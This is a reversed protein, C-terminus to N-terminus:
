SRAGREGNGLDAGADVEGDGVADVEDDGGADVAGDGGAAGDGVDDPSSAGRSDDGTPEAATPEHGNSGAANAADPEVILTFQALRKDNCTVSAKIMRCPAEADLWKAEIAVTDGPQAIHFFKAVKLQHLRLQGCGLQRAGGLLVAQTLCVGPLVPTAAFHDPLVSLNAEVTFTARYGQDMAEVVLAQDVQRRIANLGPGPRDVPTQTRLGSSSSTASPEIRSM